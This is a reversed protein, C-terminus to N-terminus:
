ALRSDYGLEMGDKFTSEWDKGVVYWAHNRQYVEAPIFALILALNLRSRTTTTYWGASFLKVSTPTFEAVKNNYLYMDIRPAVGNGVYQVLNTNNAVVRHGHYLKAKVDEYSM